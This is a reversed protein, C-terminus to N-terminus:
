RGEQSMVQAAASQRFSGILLYGTVVASVALMLWLVLLWGRLSRMFDRSGCLTLAGGDSFM